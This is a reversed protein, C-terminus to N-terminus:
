KEGKKLQNIRDNNYNIISINLHENQRETKHQM